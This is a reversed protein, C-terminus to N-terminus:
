SDTTNKHRKSMLCRGCISGFALLGAASSPEPISTPNTVPDPTPDTTPEPTPTVPLCNCAALALFCTCPQPVPEPTPNPSIVPGANDSFSGGEIFVASDYFGDGADAIALKMTHQGPSLNLAKAQFVKTLGDYQIHYKALNQQNLSNDKYQGPNSADTGLPNGGNVTNIAVPTQTGPILAINKGDLFFGFVDNYESNVYENYEESAFVYNFYLDGGESVFKFELSTADQTTVNTTPLLQNLQQDGPLANNATKNSGNNAGVANGVKGTTLIIGTDIDLGSTLGNKFGGSAEKAGQYKLSGPVLQIGDGLISEVLKDSENTPMVSVGALAPVSAIGLTVISLAGGQIIKKTQNKKM